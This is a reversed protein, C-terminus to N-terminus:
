TGVHRSCGLDNPGKLTWETRSQSAHFQPTHVNKFTSEKASLRYAIIESATPM